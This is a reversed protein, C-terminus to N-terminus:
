DSSRAELRRIRKLRHKLENRMSSQRNQLRRCERRLMKNEASLSAVEDQIQELLGNIDSTTSNADPDPEGAEVWLELRLEDLESVVTDVTDLATIGSTSGTDKVETSQAGSADASTTTPAEAKNPASADSIRRRLGGLTSPDPGGQTSTPPEESEPSRALEHLQNQAHHLVELAADLTQVNARAQAERAAREAEIQERLTAICGAADMSSDVGYRELRKQALYHTRLVRKM